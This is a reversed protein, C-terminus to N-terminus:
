RRRTRSAAQEPRHQESGEAVNGCVEAIPTVRRRVVRVTEAHQIQRIRTVVGLPHAAQADAVDHGPWGSQAPGQTDAANLDAGIEGGLGHQDRM